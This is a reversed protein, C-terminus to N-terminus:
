GKRKTLGRAQMVRVTEDLGARYDPYRPEWALQQRVKGASVTTVLAVQKMHQPAIWRRAIASSWDPIHGAHRFGWTLAFYDMFDAFSAPAGDVVNFVEGAPKREAVLALARAADEVQLFNALSRKSGSLYLRHWQFSKVYLALDKFGPGYLYGLRLVTAPVGAARVLGEAQIAAAFAPDLSGVTLPTSEDANRANGYLFAYSAYVLLPLNGIKGSKLAEILATAEAPLSQEYGRWKHGDHLLTNTRQPALHLVVDPQAGSLLAGLRDVDAADAVQASAGTARVREALKEDPALGTVAAGQAVFLRCAELGLETAAGTIFVRQSRSSAADM